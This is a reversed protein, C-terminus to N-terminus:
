LNVWIVCGQKHKYPKPTKFIKPKRLIWAYTAPYPLASTKSLDSILHKKENGFYEEQSLKKCDVIEVTGVWKGEVVLGVEGRIHCNSGRIEWVKKGSLILGAWPHRLIFGKM